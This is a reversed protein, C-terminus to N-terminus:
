GEDPIREDQSEDKYSKRFVVFTPMSNRQM